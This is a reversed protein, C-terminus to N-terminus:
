VNENGWYCNIMQEVVDNLESPTLEVPDGNEDYCEFKHFEPNKEIEFNRGTDEWSDWYGRGYDRLEASVEYEVDGRTFHAVYETM